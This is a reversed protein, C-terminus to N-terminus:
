LSASPHRGNGEVSAAHMRPSYFKPSVGLMRRFMTTFASVSDYGLDLAVSTVPEGETLRPLAAFLCAQQRWISLSVGTERQFHRTFSRRSMAMRNAWDDITARASPTKVFERCLKQLRIDTPFPLGLPRQPLTRLDKLILEIVLADRSGPEPISDVLTADIILCRMLDTMGVVHLYDPVGSIVDVAIYISRMLVDGVIEVSHEVGAPIWIAHDSPIMWRGAQTTVLVVGQSACLLQARSHSHQPVFYGDPYETPLAIVPGHLNELMAIRQEHFRQLEESQPM